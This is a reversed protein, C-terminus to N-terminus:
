VKINFKTGLYIAYIIMENLKLVYFFIPRTQQM